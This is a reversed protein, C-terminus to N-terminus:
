RKPTALLIARTMIIVFGTMSSDAVFSSLLKDPNLQLFSRFDLVEATSAFFIFQM